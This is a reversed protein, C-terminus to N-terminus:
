AGVAEEILRIAKELRKRFEGETTVKLQLVAVVLEEKAKKLTEKESNTMNENPCLINVLSIYARVRCRTISLFVWSRFVM